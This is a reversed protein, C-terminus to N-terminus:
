SSRSDGDIFHGPSVLHGGLNRGADPDIVTAKWRGGWSQELCGLLYLVFNGLFVRLSILKINPPSAGCIFSPSRTVSECLLPKFSGLRLRM